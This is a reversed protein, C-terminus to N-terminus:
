ILKEEISKEEILNEEKSEWEINPYQNKKERLLKDWLNPNEIYKDITTSEFESMPKNMTQGCDACHYYIVERGSAGAIAGINEFISNRHYGKKTNYGEKKNRYSSKQKWMSCMKISM